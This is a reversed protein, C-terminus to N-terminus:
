LSTIKSLLSRGSQYCTTAIVIKILDGIIFPYFGLQLAKNGTYLSLLPLGFLYVVLSGTLLSFFLRFFSKASNSEVIMGSVYAGFAMGFLYGGSPGVLYHAGAAGGAFVPFGIAGQFLYLAIASFGRKPGLLAGILLATQSQLTIPVPTFPLIVEVQSLLAMIFSGTIVLLIDLATNNKVRETTLECSPTM